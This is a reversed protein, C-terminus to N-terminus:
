LWLSHRRKLPRADPQGLFLVEPCPDELCACMRQYRDIDQRYDENDIASISDNVEVEEAEWEDIEVSEIDTQNASDPINDMWGEVIRWDYSANFDAIKNEPWSEEYETGYYSQQGYTSSIAGLDQAREKAQYFAEETDILARTLQQGYQVSWRDVDSRSLPTTGAEAKEYFEAVNRRYNNQRDDFNTQLTHLIQSLNIFNDYAAKRQLEEESIEVDEHHSAVSGTPSHTPMAHEPIEAEEETYELEEDRLLIAPLPKEQGLLDVERMATELVWQTHNRSLELNGKVLDREKELEDKWHHIKLLESTQQEILKQYKEAQEESEATELSEQARQMSREINKIDIRAHSLPKELASVDRNEQFLDRLKALFLKNVLLAVCDKSGDEAIIFRSPGETLQAHRPEENQVVDDGAITNTASSEGDGTDEQKAGLSEISQPQLTSGTADTTDEHSWSSSLNPRGIGTDVPNNAPSLSELNRLLGFAPWITNLFKHIHTEM